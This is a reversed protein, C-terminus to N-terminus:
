QKKLILWNKNLDCGKSTLLSSFADVAEPYPIDHHFHDKDYDIWGEGNREAIERAQEETASKSTCVIEWIGPPLKIASKKTENYDLGPLKLGPAGPLSLWKKKGAVPYIIYGMNIVFDTRYNEPKLVWADAPVEFAWYNGRLEIM